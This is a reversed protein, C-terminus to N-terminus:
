VPRYVSEAFRSVDLAPFDFTGLPISAFSDLIDQPTGEQEYVAITSFGAPMAGPRQFETREFCQGSVLAPIHLAHRLHRTAYWERFEGEKGPVGNAFALTLLSPSTTPSRGVKENAPYYLWTAPPRASPQSSHLATVADIFPSAASAGDVSLEYIGLYRFPLRPYRGLTIDVEHQEYQQASLVGVHAALAERHASRYWDRYEQEHEPAAGSLVFLVHSRQATLLELPSKSERTTM